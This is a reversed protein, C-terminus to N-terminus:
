VRCVSCNVQSLLLWFFCYVNCVRCYVSSYICCAAILMVFQVSFWVSYVHWVFVFVVFRVILVILCCKIPCVCCYVSRYVHKDCIFVCRIFCYVHRFLLTLWLCSPRKYVDWFGKVSCRVQVFMMLVSCYVRCVFCFCCYVFCLLLCCLPAFTQPRKSFIKNTIKRFHNRSKLTNSQRINKWKDPLSHFGYESKLPFSNTQIRSQLTYQVNCHFRITGDGTLLSSAASRRTHPTVDRGQASRCGQTDRLLIIKKQKEKKESQKIPQDTNYLTWCQRNSWSAPRM